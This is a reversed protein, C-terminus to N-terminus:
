RVTKEPREKFVLEREEGEIEAWFSSGKPIIYSTAGKLSIRGPGRMKERAWSNVPTIRIYNWQFDIKVLRALSDVSVEKGTKKDLIYLGM